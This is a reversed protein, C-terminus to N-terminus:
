LLIPVTIQLSIPYTAQPLNTLSAICFLMGMQVSPPLNPMPLNPNIVPMAIPRGPQNQLHFNHTSVFVRASVQWGVEPASTGPGGTAITGKENEAFDVRLTRGGM